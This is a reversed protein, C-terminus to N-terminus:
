ATAVQPRMLLELVFVALLSVVLTWVVAGATLPWALLVVLAAIVAIAVRIWTRFQYLWAGVKGTSIGRKEAAGRVFAAADIAATRYKRGSQLGLFWTVLAISFTLVALAAATASMRATLQDFLTEAVNAPMVKPTVSAVFVLKGIGFGAALSTFMVGLAIAAGFLSRKRNVAVVIGVVVFALAVWPLGNGVAVSLQYAPRLLALQDSQAVVITTNITPISSAFAMGRDTLSKKVSDILPGTAIGISGNDGLAVATGPKGQLVDLMQEHSLTLAQTVASSFADSSVVNHVAQSILSKIGETAPGELLGLAQAAAPPLGLSNLGDFVSSTLGAIDVNANIAKVVEDGIYQQVDPDSALPGFTAVFAETSELQTKAWTGVVAAPALLVGVAVLVTAAFARWRRAGRSPGGVEPQVSAASEAKLHQNEAKLQSLEAELEAKTKAAM